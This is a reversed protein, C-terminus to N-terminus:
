IPMRLEPLTCLEPFALVLVYECTAPERVFASMKRDSACTLKVTTSRAVNGVADGEPTGTCPDGHTYSYLLYRRRKLHSVEGRSAVSGKPFDEDQLLPTQANVILRMARSAERRTSSLMQSDFYTTSKRKSATVQGDYSGLRISATEVMQVSQRQNSPGAGEKVPMAEAHFQRVTKQHCFEYSWWGQMLTVCGNPLSKSLIRDARTYVSERNGDEEDDEDEEEEDHELTSAAQNAENLAREAARRTAAAVEMAAAKADEEDISEFLEHQKDRFKNMINHLTTEVDKSVAELEEIADNGSSVSSTGASSSSFFWNWMGNEEAYCAQTRACAAIASIKLVQRRKMRANAGEDQNTFQLKTVAAYLVSLAHDLDPREDVYAPFGDQAKKAQQAEETRLASAMVDVDDDMLITQVRDRTGDNVFNSHHWSDGPGGSVHTRVVVGEDYTDKASEPSPGRLVAVLRECAETVVRLAKPDGDAAAQNQADQQADSTQTTARVRLRQRYSPVKDTSGTQAAAAARAGEPYPEQTVRHTSHVPPPMGTCARVIEQLFGSRAAAHAAIREMRKVAMDAQSSEDINAKSRELAERMKPLRPLLQAAGAEVAAQCVDCALERAEASASPPAKKPPPSQAKFGPGAPAKTVQVKHVTPLEVRPHPCTWARGVVSPQGGQAGGELSTCVGHVANLRGTAAGTPSERGSGDPMFFRGEGRSEPVLGLSPTPIKLHIGSSHWRVEAQSAAAVAQSEAAKNAHMSVTAGPGAAEKAAETLAQLLEVFSAQTRQNTTLSVADICACSSLLLLVVLRLLLIRRRSSAM